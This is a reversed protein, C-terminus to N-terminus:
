VSLIDDAPSLTGSHGVQRHFLYTVLAMGWLWWKGVCACACACACVCVCVCVCVFVCVCVCVCVCVYTYLCSLDTWCVGHPFRPECAGSSLRKNRLLIPQCDLVALASCKSAFEAVVSQACFQDFVVVDCFVIMKSFMELLTKSWM